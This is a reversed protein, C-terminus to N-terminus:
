YVLWTEPWWLNFINFRGIPTNSPQERCCWNRELDILKMGKREYGVNCIVQLDLVNYANGANDQAWPLEPAYRWQGDILFRYQYVGAPLVKMITFDKGSRQLPM